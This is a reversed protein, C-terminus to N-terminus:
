KSHDLSDLKKSLTQLDFGIETFRSPNGHSVGKESSYTSDSSSYSITRSRDKEINNRIAELSWVHKDTNRNDTNKNDTNRNGTNKNDTNKNDTNRNDPVNNDDEISSNIHSTRFSHRGSAQPTTSKGRVGDSPSGRGRVGDPLSGKGRDGNSPSGQGRV